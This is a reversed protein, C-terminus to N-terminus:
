VVTNCYKLVDRLKPESAKNIKIRQKRLFQRVLKSQEKGFVKAFSRNGKFEFREGNLIVFGERIPNSFRYIGSSPDLKLNKKWEYCLTINTSDIIQVISKAGNRTEVNFVMDGITFRTLWADSVMIVKESGFQNTFKLLLVQNYIDYKLLQNTYTTEKITLTGQKFDNGLLFQHGDANAIYYTYQKGNILTPDLIQLVPPNTGRNNTSNAVNAILSFFSVLFFFVWYNSKHFITFILM